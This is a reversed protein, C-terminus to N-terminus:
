LCPSAITGDAMDTATGAATGMGGILRMASTFRRDVEAKSPWAMVLLAHPAPVWCSQLRPALRFLVVREFAAWPWDGIEVLDALLKM